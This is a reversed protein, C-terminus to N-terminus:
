RSWKLYRADLEPDPIPFSTTAGTAVEVIIISDNDTYYAVRTGDPSWDFPQSHYMSLPGHNVRTLNGTGLDAIRFGLPRGASILLKSSDPSFALHVNPLSDFVSAVVRPNSLTNTAQNWDEVVVYKEGYSLDGAYVYSLKRGDPAVVLGSYRMSPEGLSPFFRQRTGQQISYVFFQTEAPNSQRHEVLFRSGEPALASDEWSWGIYHPNVETAFTDLDVFVTQNHTDKYVGSKRDPSLHIPIQGSLADLEQPLRRYRTGDDNVVALFAPGYNETSSLFFRGGATKEVIPAASAGVAVQNGLRDQIEATITYRTGVPHEPPPAWISVVEWVEEQSNWEMKQESHGTFAGAVGQPGVARMTCFLPGGGERKARVKFTLFEGQRVVADTNPPLLAREQTPLIELSIIEPASSDDDLGQPPEAPEIQTELDTSSTGSWGSVGKAVRVEGTSSLVVTYPDAVESMLFYSPESDLTRPASDPASSSTYRLGSCVVIHYSDQFLPLNNTVVNGSPTFVFQYDRSKFWRTFDIEEEGTSAVPPQLTNRPGSWLGVFAVTHEFENSDDFIRRIRALDTGSMLYSSRSHPVAGSQSPFVLAVPEETAKAQARALRLREAVISAMERSGQVKRQNAGGTLLGLALVSGLVFLAVLIELLSFGSTTLRSSNWRSSM